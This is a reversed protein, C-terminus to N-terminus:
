YANKGVFGTFITRFVIKIDWWLSWNRIYHLDCEVRKEMKDLTDTEGRWGNVQAWGTIGPKVKHRLMYGSILKRYVENHAVAHPRPGVISMNGTLVNIFQPLEDLSTRRLFAGFPTIRVDRKKAQVICHGDDCVTMSRFKWVKISKGDIGFRNQKFLMPGPSSLKVGAAIFLMPIAILTLILCSLVIDEIRKLWGDVGSFPSEYVSITPVSGLNIWRANLLDFAFFDPVLHVSANTDSLAAILRSIQEEGKLALAIYVLDFEDNKARRILDDFGGLMPAVLDKVIRNDEGKRNDFYGKIELGYSATEKIVRGIRNGVDGAGAIAVSRTNYGKSRCYSLVIRVSLRWSVLALPAVVFWAGIVIRSYETSTKFFYAAVLLVFVTICWALMVPGIMQTFSVGRQSRYIDLGRAIFSFCLISLLAPLLYQDTVPIGRVYLALLLTLAIIVGDSVRFVFALRSSHPRIISM